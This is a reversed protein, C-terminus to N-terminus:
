ISTPIGDPEDPPLNNTPRRNVFHIDGQFLIHLSSVGDVKFIGYQALDNASKVDQQGKGFLQAALSSGGQPNHEMPLDPQGQFVVPAFILALNQTTMKNQASHSAVRFAFTLYRM